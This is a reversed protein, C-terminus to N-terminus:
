AGPVFRRLRLVATGGKGTTTWKVLGTGSAYHFDHTKGDEDTLRVHMADPFRGAPVVVEEVGVYRAMGKGAAPGDWADGPKAGLKFTRWWAVPRDDKLDGWAVYGDELFWVEDMSATAGPDPPNFIDYEVETRGAQRRAVTFTCTRADGNFEAEFEWKSGVPFDYFRAEAAGAAAQPSEAPPPSKSEGCATAALLLISGLRTRVSRM